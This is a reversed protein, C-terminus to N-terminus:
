KSVTKFKPFAICEHPLHSSFVRKNFSGTEVQSGQGHLGKGLVVQWPTLSSQPVASCYLQKGLELWQIQSFFFFINKNVKKKPFTQPTWIAPKPKCPKRSELVGWVWVGSGLLDDQQWKHCKCLTLVPIVKDIQLSCDSRRCWYILFLMKNRFGLYMRRLTPYILRNVNRSFNLFFSHSSKFM